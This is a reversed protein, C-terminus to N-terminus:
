TFAKINGNDADPICLEVATDGFRRYTKSCLVADCWLCRLRWLLHLFFFCFRKIKSTFPRLSIRARFIFVCNYIIIDCLYCFQAFLCIWSLLSPLMLHMRFYLRGLKVLCLRKGTTGNRKYGVNMNKLNAM